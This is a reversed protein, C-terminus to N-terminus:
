SILRGRLGSIFQDIVATMTSLPSRSRPAWQAFQGDAYMRATGYVLARATLQMTALDDFHALGKERAESLVRDMLGRLAENEAQLTPSADWDILSANRM